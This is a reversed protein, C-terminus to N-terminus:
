ILYFIPATMTLWERYVHLNFALVPITVTYAFDQPNLPETTCQLMNEIKRFHAGGSSQNIM